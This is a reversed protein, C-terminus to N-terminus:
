ERVGEVEGSLSPLKERLIEELTEHSMDPNGESDVEVLFLLDKIIYLRVKEGFRCGIVIHQAENINVADIGCLHTNREGECGVSWFVSLVFITPLFLKM